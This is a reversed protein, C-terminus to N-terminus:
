PGPVEELDPGELYGLDRLRELTDADVERTATADPLRPTQERHRDGPTTLERVVDPWAGSVDREEPPDSALDYLRTYSPFRSSVLKFRETQVAV